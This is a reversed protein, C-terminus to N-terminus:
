SGCKESGKRYFDSSRRQYGLSNSRPLFFMVVANQDSLFRTNFSEDWVSMAVDITTNAQGAPLSNDTWVRASSKSAPNWLQIVGNGPTNEAGIRYKEVIARQAPNNMDAPFRVLGGTRDFYHAVDKNINQGFVVKNNVQPSVRDFTFMLDTDRTCNDHSKFNLDSAWVEIMPRAPGEGDPDAMLATSVPLCVPTPAKKDAVMFSETCLTVNNCNDHARWTVTHTASARLTVPITISVQTGNLTPAIYVDNIGNGNTDNNFNNDGSNLFSSWEYDPTGDSGLDVIIQWRIRGNDTCDGADQAIKTLVLNRIECQGDVEFMKNACDQLVPAVADKHVFKKFYPGREENTCWNILRYEVVWKKCVGDEFEFERIKSSLGIIDCAGALWKPGYAKIDTESPGDCSVDQPLDSPPTVVWAQEQPHPAFTITQQCTRTTNNGNITFTRIVTGINCQNLNVIDRYTVVPPNCTGYVQPQGTLSLNVSSVDTASTRITVDATCHVTINSPCIVIPPAKLEVKVYAWTESWNDGEDGLIGNMNGDDWVRLIVEHYGRDKDDLIGDGNADVVIADADECCFKVFRGSDTDNISNNEGFGSAYTRNNNHGGNGTNGCAPGIPRRVELRVPSCFDHSGNDVSEAFLKGHATNNGDLDTDQILSLVIDQKSIATPAVKDQVTVTFNCVRLNNCEDRFEYRVVSAGKELNEAFVRLNGAAVTGTVTLKGKGYLIAKFTVAGCNDTIQAPLPLVASATCSWPDTSLTIDSPCTVQPAQNDLVEIIQIHEVPNNPGVPLCRNRITWKRLIEISNGCLWLEKDEYTHSLNCTASVHDVIKGGITPYGTNSPHKLTANNAVASCNLVKDTPWVIQNLNFPLVDIRQTCSVKSTQNYYVTFTRTYRATPNSCSGFQTETDNYDVTYGPVCSMLKVEGTLLKGLNNRADKDESCLITVDAPCEIEPILKQEIKVYGWCSNGSGLCDTISVKFTKGVDNLDFVIGHPAGNPGTVTICYKEYCRYENGELIMDANLTAKCDGDLSLNILNNCAMTHVAPIYEIVTVTFTCSASNGAADTAVATVLTTGIEFPKTIDPTYSIQVSCNDTATARQTIFTRCEGPNLNVTVPAPCTIVPINVDRVTVTALCAASNGCADTVVLMVENDGLHSCNFVSQSMQFTLDEIDSCNETIGALGGAILDVASVTVTGSANLNVTIDVCTFSPPTTDVITIRQVGSSTNGCPDTATWTRVIVGTYGCDGPIFVETFAICIYDSPACNDVATAVGFEAFAPDPSYSGSSPDCSFSKVLYEGNCEVTVDLPLTLVPKITDVVTVVQNWVQANGAVDSVTWINTLTYNYHGCVAPDPNQTSVQGFAITPNPDCNDEVDNPNLVLPAPINNCLVTIDQPKGPLIEPKETDVVIFTWSCMASNGESDTATYTITYPGGVPFVSGPPLGTTQVISQPAMIQDCNDLAVPISWNVTASCRDPDNAYVLQNQPCNVFYPQDSDIITLQVQCSRVNGAEDTASVTVLIMDGPNPGFLSGAVPNQTIQVNASCNDTAVLGSILDPVVGACGAVTMPGPCDFEPRITDRVTVTAVCIGTNGVADTVTLTVNNNGINDCDFDTQSLVLSLISCNDYSGADIDAITIGAEGNADLYVTVDQCIAVPRTLDLVNIQTTCTATNGSADTVLLIGNVVNGFDPDIDLCGVLFSPGFNLGDRSIALNITGGCDDYSEINLMATTVQLLGNGDLVADLQPQCIVTPPTADNIQVIVGCTATNGNIDTVSVTVLFGAGDTLGIVEGAVPNQTISLVGCNDAADEVLSVLDPVVDYCSLAIVDEPCTFTPRITDRVTVTAVCIGTNGVADTVTLTVNNNGTNDCDFDTQSLVLSVISCNDYSGADIDAITIGAEGNADLYVTVDQCIAVPRTLDLVNIQTTCTATNGSADTVRLIGNVVNGFDPDIDLCGVLFSPGFNVGDRSIALSITGGCDDYSEINLMATTVQLLGNGDLVADLQPQCIVTPPTADNIQVIVGCTATNGNIDTM